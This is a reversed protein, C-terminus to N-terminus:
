TKNRWYNINSTTSRGETEIWKQLEVFLVIDNDFTSGLGRFMRLFIKAWLLKIRFPLRYFPIKDIIKMITDNNINDHM